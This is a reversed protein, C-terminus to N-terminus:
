MSGTEFWDAASGAADDASSVRRAMVPLSSLIAPAYSKTGLRPDMLVVVGRDDKRRILRGVGQRLRLIAEPLSLRAFPNGGEAQM